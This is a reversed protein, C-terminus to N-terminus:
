DPLMASVGGGQSSLSSLSCSCCLAQFWTSSSKVSWPLLVLYLLAQFLLLEALNCQRAVECKVDDVHGHLPSQCSILCRSLDSLTRMVALLTKRSTRLALNTAADSTTCLKEESWCLSQTSPSCDFRVQLCPLFHVPECRVVQSVHGSSASITAERMRCDGCHFGTEGGEVLAATPPMMAAGRHLWAEISHM